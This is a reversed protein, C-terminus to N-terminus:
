LRSQGRQWASLRLDVNERVNGFFLAFDVDHYGLFDWEALHFLSGRPFKPVHLVNGTAVQATFPSSVIVPTLSSATLGILSRGSQDSLNGFRMNTFGPLWGVQKRPDLEGFCPYAAGLHQGPSSPTTGPGLKWTIPNTCLSRSKSKGEISQALFTRWSSVTRLDEACTSPKIQRLTKVFVTEDVAFGPLYAHVLRRLRNPHGEVEDRLISLLYLCGQSHGALIFPRDANAADDVFSVFARRVDEYALMRAQRKDEEYRKNHLNVFVMISASRYRPAYVRCVKNFCSAGVAVRLDAMENVKAALGVQPLSGDEIPANWRPGGRESFPVMESPLLISDHVFFCDCPRDAPAILAQGPLALNNADEIARGPARTPHASWSELKTYDPAAGQKEAEWSHLPRSGMVRRINLALYCARAISPPLLPADTLDAM